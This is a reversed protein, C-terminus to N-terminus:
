NLDSEYFIKIDNKFKILIYEGKFLKFIRDIDLNKSFIKNIKNNEYKYVIMTKEFYIIFKNNELTCFKYSKFDKLDAINYHNMEGTELNIYFIGEDFFLVSNNDELLMYPNIKNNKYFHWYVHNDLNKLNFSKIEM